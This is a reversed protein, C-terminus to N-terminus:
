TCFIHWIQCYRFTFFFMNSYWSTPSSKLAGKVVLFIVDRAHPAEDGKVQPLMQPFHWRGCPFNIAGRQILEHHAGEGVLCTPTRWRFAWWFIVVMRCALKPSQLWINCRNPKAWLVCIADHFRHNSPGCFFPVRQFVVGVIVHNKKMIKQACWRFVLIVITFLVVM